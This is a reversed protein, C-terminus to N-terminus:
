QSRGDTGSSGGASESFWESQTTVGGVEWLASLSLREIRKVPLSTIERKTSEYIVAGELLVRAIRHEPVIESVEWFQEIPTEILHDFNRFQVRYDLRNTATQGWRARELIQRLRGKLSRSGATSKWGCM